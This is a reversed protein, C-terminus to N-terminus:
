RRARPVPEVQAHGQVAAPPVEGLGDLRKPVRQAEVIGEGTRVVAERYRQDLGSLAGVRMPVVFLRDGDLRVGHHTCGRRSLMPSCHMCLTSGGKKNRLLLFFLLFREDEKKTHTHAISEEWRTRAVGGSKNM